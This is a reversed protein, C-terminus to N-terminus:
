PHNNTDLSLHHHNSIDDTPSSSSSSSLSCSTFKMNSLSFSQSAEISEEFISADGSDRKVGTWEVDVSSITGRRMTVAPTDTLCKESSSTIRMHSMSLITGTSLKFLHKTTSLQKNISITFNNLTLTTGSTSVLFVDTNALTEGVTLTVSSYDTTAAQPEITVTRSGFTITSIEATHKGNMMLVKEASSHTEKTKAITRCPLVEWGCTSKDYGNNSVFM